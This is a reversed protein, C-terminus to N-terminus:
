DRATQPDLPSIQMESIPSLPALVIAAPAISTQAIPDLEIPEIVTLPPLASATGDAVTAVVVGPPIAAAAARVTAPEAPASAPLASRRHTAPDAAQRAAATGAGRLEATPASAPGQPSPPRMWVVAATVAAVTLAAAALPRLLFWQAPRQLRASVRARFAADADVDMLDRVVRDIATDIERETM